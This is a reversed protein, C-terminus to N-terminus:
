ICICIYNNYFFLYKSGTVMYSFQLGFSSFRFESPPTVIRLNIESTITPMAKDIKLKADVPMAVPSCAVPL